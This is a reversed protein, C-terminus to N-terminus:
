VSKENQLEILGELDFLFQRIQNLITNCRAILDEHAKMEILIKKFGLVDDLLDESKFKILVYSTEQKSAKEKLDELRQQYNEFYRLM